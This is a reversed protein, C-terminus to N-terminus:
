PDPPPSCEAEGRLIRGSRSILDVYNEFLALRSAISQRGDERGPYPDFLTCVPAQFTCLRVPPPKKSPAGARSRLPDMYGLMGLPYYFLERWVTSVRM